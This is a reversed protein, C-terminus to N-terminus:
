FNVLCYTLENANAHWHPERVASTFLILRRISLRKLIPFEKSTIATINGTSRITYLSSDDMSFVHPSKANTLAVLNFLFIILRQHM